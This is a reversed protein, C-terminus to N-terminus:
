VFTMQPHKLFVALGLLVLVCVCSPLLSIPAQMADTRVRTRESVTWTSPRSPACLPVRASQCPAEEAAPRSPLRAWNGNSSCYALAPACPFYASQYHSPEAHHHPHTEGPDLVRWVHSTEESPLVTCEM